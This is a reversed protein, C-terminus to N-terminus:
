YRQEAVQEGYYIPAAPSDQPPIIPEAASQEYVGVGNNLPLQHGGDEEGESEATFLCCNLDM